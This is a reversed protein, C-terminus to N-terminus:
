KVLRIDGIKSKSSTVEVQPDASLIQFRDPSPRKRRM